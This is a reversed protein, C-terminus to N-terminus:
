EGFQEAVNGLWPLHFWEGQLAKISLVLWTLFIAFMVLIGSVLWILLFGFNSVLVGLGSFAIAVLWFLISQVAHFRVFHRRQLKKLFIFAIAPLLTLYAAAGLLRDNRTASQGPVSERSRREPPGGPSPMTSEAHSPAPISAPPKAASRKPLGEASSTRPITAPNRKNTATAVSPPEAPPPKLPGSSSNKPLESQPPSLPVDYQQEPKSVPQSPSSESVNSEASEPPADGAGLPDGAFRRIIARGCYPCYDADDSVSTGCTICTLPM